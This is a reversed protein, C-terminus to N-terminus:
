WTQVVSLESLASTSYLLPKQLKDCVTRRWWRGMRQLGVRTPRRLLRAQLVPCFEAMRHHHLNVNMRVAQSILLSVAHLYPPMLRRLNVAYSKTISGAIMATVAAAQLSRWKAMKANPTAVYLLQVGGPARRRMIIPVATCETSMLVWVHWTARNPALQRMRNRTIGLYWLKAVLQVAVNTM